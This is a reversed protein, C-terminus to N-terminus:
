GFCVIGLKEKEELSMQNYVRKLIPARNDILNKIEIFMKTCGEEKLLDASLVHSLVARPDAGKRVVQEAVKVLLENPTDSTKIAKELINLAAFTGKHNRDKNNEGRGMLEIVERPLGFGTPTSLPSMENYFCEPVLKPNFYGEGPKEGELRNVPNTLKEYLDPNNKKALEIVLGWVFNCEAYRHLIWDPGFIELMRDVVPCAHSYGIEYVKRIQNKRFFGDGENGFLTGNGYRRGYRTESM